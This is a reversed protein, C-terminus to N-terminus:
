IKRKSKRVNTKKNNRYSKVTRPSFGRITCDLLWEQVLDKIKLQM